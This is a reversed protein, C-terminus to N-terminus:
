DNEGKESIYFINSCLWQFSCKNILYTVIQLNFDLEHNGLCAVDINTANM